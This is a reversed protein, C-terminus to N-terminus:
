KRRFTRRFWLTVRGLLTKKWREYEPNIYIVREEISGDEHLIKIKRIRIDKKSGLEVPATQKGRYVVGFFGPGGIAGPGMPGMPGGPGMMPGFGMPGMPGRGHGHGHGHGGHPGGHPGGFGGPGGGPGMPGMGPM